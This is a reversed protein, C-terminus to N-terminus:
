ADWFAAGLIRKEKFELFPKRDAQPMHWSADLVIPHQKPDENALLKKLEAPAILSPATSMLRSTSSTFTRLSRLPRTLLMTSPSTPPPPAARPASVGSSDAILLQQEISLVEERTSTLATLYPILYSELTNRMGAAGHKWRRGVRPRGQGEVVCKGM